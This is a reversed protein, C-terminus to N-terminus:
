STIIIVKINIHLIIVNIMAIIRLLDIGYNRKQKAKIIEKNKKDLINHTLNIGNELNKTIIESNSLEFNSNM